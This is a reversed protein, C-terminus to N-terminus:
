KRTFRDRIKAAAREFIPVVRDFVSHSKAVLEDVSVKTGRRSRKARKRDETRDNVPM